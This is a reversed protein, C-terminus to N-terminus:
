DSNFYVGCEIVIIVRFDFLVLKFTVVGGCSWFGDDNLNNTENRHADCGSFLVRGFTISISKGSKDGANAFWFEGICLIM